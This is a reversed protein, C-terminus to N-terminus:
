ENKGGWRTKGISVLTVAFGIASAIALYLGFRHSNTDNFTTYQYDTQQVVNSVLGGTYTFSANNTAGVKYEVTGQNMMLALLFM